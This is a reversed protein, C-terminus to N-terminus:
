LLFVPQLYFACRLPVSQSLRSLRGGSLCVTLADDEEVSDTQREAQGKPAMDCKAAKRALFPREFGKM